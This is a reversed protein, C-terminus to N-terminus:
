DKKMVSGRSSTKRERERVCVSILVCWEREENERVCLSVSDREQVCVIKVCDRERACVCILCVGSEKRM